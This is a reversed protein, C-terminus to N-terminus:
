SNLKITPVGKIDVGTPGLSISNAGSKIEISEAKLEISSGLISLKIADPTMVIDVPTSPVSLGVKQYGVEYVEPAETTHSDKHVTVTMHGENVDILHDGKDVTVTRKGGVFYTENNRVRKTNDHKVTTKMDRQAQVVIEEHGKADDFRLENYDEAGGGDLSRTKWGSQSPKGEYPSKNRKNYVCGTILPRDPNGDLFEVVVEQGVRPIFVAGWEAGTWSQAVRVWGSCHKDPPDAAKDARRARNWHFHVKVSAYDHTTVEGEKHGVVTATQAGALVPWATKRAPRFRRKTPTCRIKAQFDAGAGDGSEFAGSDGQYVVSTVLYEQNEVGRKHGELTFLTGASLGAADTIAEATEFGAQLEELRTSRRKNGQEVELYHGPYEYIVATKDRPHKTRPSILDVDIDARPKEFDYDRMAIGGPTVSTKATWGWISAADKRDSEWKRISLKDIGPATKHGSKDDAIVLKHKKKEHEFYFYLGDDELLRMVFSLDSESYQVCFDRAAPTEKVRLDIEFGPDSWGSVVERLIEVSSLNQFVRCDTRTSLLWLWPRLVMQYSAYRGRSGVHGFECCIGDIFREPQGGCQVRISVHQGMLDDTTINHDESYLSLVYEFCASMQEAGHFQRILLKDTGLPSHLELKREAEIGM